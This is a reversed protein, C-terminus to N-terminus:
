AWVGSARNTTYINYM